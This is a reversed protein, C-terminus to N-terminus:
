RAEELRAVKPVAGDRALRESASEDGRLYLDLFDVTVRAVARAQRSRAPDSEYPHRHDGGVITLLYKPARAAAYATRSREYPNGHDADGHVLLLPVAGAAFEGAPPFAPIGPDFFLSGALSVAARVRGDACCTNLMGLVVEAGLSHGAIGIQGPDVLDRFPSAADASAALMSDIVFRVDGPENRYDNADLGGAAGHVTGPFRPAAVVYGAAAWASLLARYNDPTQDYGHAFV